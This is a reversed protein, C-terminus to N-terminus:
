RRELESPAYWVIGNVSAFSVPITCEVPVREPRPLNTRVVTGVEGERHVNKRPAVTSGVPFDETDWTRLYDPAYMDALVALCDTMTRLDSYDFGTAESIEQRMVEISTPLYRSIAWDMMDTTVRFSGHGPHTFELVLEGTTQTM